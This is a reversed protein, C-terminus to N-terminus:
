KSSHYQQNIGSELWYFFGMADRSDIYSPVHNNMLGKGSLLWRGNKGEKVVECLKSFYKYPM